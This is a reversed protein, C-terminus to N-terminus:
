LSGLREHLYRNILPSQFYDHIYQCVKATYWSKYLLSIHRTLHTINIKKQLEHTWKLYCSDFNQANISKIELSIFVQFELRDLKQRSSYKKPNILPFPINIDDIIYPAAKEGYVTNKPLCGVCNVFHFPLHIAIFTEFTCKGSPVLIADVNQKQM